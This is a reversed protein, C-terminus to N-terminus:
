SDWVEAYLTGAANTGALLSSQVLTFTEGSILLMWGWEPQNSGGGGPPSIWTSNNAAAAGTNVNDIRGGTLGTGSYDGRILFLVTHLNSDSPTTYSFYTPLSGSTVIPAGTAGTTWLRRLKPLALAAEEVEVDTQMIQGWQATIKGGTVPTGASAPDIYSM